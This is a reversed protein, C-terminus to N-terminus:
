RVRFTVSKAKAGPATFTMRYAGKALRKENWTGSLDLCLTTTAQKM